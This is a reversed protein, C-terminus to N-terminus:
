APKPLPRIVESGSRRRLWYSGPVSMSGRLWPCAKLLLEREHLWLYSLALVTEFDSNFMLFAHLLYQEDWFRRQSELWDRPYARPLFIDHVHVLVGNRLRPLVELFLHVVDGGTRIVHSSDIVLVDGPGLSEFCAIPVEQVPSRIVEDLGLRELWPAEYPEIAVHRCPYGDSANASIARRVLRTSHGSGVELVSSPRSTRLMSYLVDADGPGFVPNRPSFAEAEGSGSDLNAVEDAFVALESLLERQRPLQLDIGVMASEDTWVAPSLDSVRLVPSYYHFSLPLVGTRDWVVNTRPFSGPEAAYTRLLPSVMRAVLAFAADALALRGAPSTLLLKRPGQTMRAV